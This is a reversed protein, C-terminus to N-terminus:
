KRIDAYPQLIGTRTSQGGPSNGKAWAVNHLISDKWKSVGGAKAEPDIWRGVVEVLDVRKRKQGPIWGSAIKEERRGARFREARERGDTRIRAAKQRIANTERLHTEEAREAFERHERELRVAKEAATEVEFFSTIKPKPRGLNQLVAEVIPLLSPPLSASTDDESDTHPQVDTNDVNELDPIGSAASQTDSDSEDDDESGSVEVLVPMDDDSELASACAPSESLQSDPPLAADDEPGWLYENRDGAANEGRVDDGEAASESDTGYGGGSGFVDASRRRRTRALTPGFLPPTPPQLVYPAIQAADTSVASRQARTPRQPM